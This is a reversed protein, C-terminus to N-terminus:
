NFFLFNNSLMWKVRIIALTTLRQNIYDFKFIFRRCRCVLLRTCKVISFKWQHNVVYSYHNICETIEYYTFKILSFFFTILLLNQYQCASFPRGIDTKISYYILLHWIIYQKLRKWPTLWLSCCASQFSIRYWNGIRTAVLLCCFCSFFSLLNFTAFNANPYLLTLLYITM